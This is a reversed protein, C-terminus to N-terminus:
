AKASFVPLYGDQYGTATPHYSNGIDTWDVSNLWGADDCLEHGSFASRVDAFVDGHRAAAQSLLTDLLDAGGNIASRDTNSLGFCLFTASMDYFEPYGLVVIRANPADAHITNLVNDLRGPLVSNAESKSNNIASVCSSTSDLVCTEMDSAFGVDNGGITISVLSTSSSLGTLQGSLVDATTAGSCANFTFSSPANAAAWLAPYGQPSRDCSGSSSYYNGTGVGASYSDGLAVYNAGAAHAAGGAVLTVACAAGIAAAASVCRRVFTPKM